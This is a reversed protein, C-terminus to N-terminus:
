WKNQMSLDSSNNVEPCASAPGSENQILQTRSSAEKTIHDSLDVAWMSAQAPTIQAM